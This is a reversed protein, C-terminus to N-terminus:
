FFSNKVWIKYLINYHLCVLALYNWTGKGALLNDVTQTHLVLSAETALHSCENCDATLAEIGLPQTCPVPAYTAIPQPSSVAM